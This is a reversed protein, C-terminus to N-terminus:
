RNTRSMRRWTAPASPPSATSRTSSSWATAQSGIDFDVAAVPLEERAAALTATDTM